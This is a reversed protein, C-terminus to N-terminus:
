LHIKVLNGYCAINIYKVAKLHIQIDTHFFIGTFILMANIFKCQWSFSSSTHSELATLIKYVTGSDSLGMRMNNSGCSLPRKKILHKNLLQFLLHLAQTHFLDNELFKNKIQKVCGLCSIVNPLFAKILLFYMFSVILRPFIYSFLHVTAAILDYVWHPCKLLIQNRNTLNVCFM